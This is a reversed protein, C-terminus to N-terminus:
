RAAGIAAMGANSVSREPKLQRLRKTAVTVFHDQM